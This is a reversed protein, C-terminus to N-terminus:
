FHGDNPYEVATPIKRPLNEKKNIFILWILFFSLKFYETSTANVGWHSFM